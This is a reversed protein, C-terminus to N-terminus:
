LARARVQRNQLSFKAEIHFSPDAQLDPTQSVSGCVYRQLVQATVKKRGDVWDKQALRLKEASFKIVQIHGAMSVGYEKLLSDLIQYRSIQDKLNELNGNAEQLAHIMGSLSWVGHHIVQEVKSLVDSQHEIMRTDVVGGGIMIWTRTWFGRQNEIISRSASLSQTDITTMSRINDLNTQLIQLDILLVNAQNLLEFIRPSIENIYVTVASVVSKSAPEVLINPFMAYFDRLLRALSDPFVFAMVYDILMPSHNHLTLDETMSDIGGVVKSKKPMKTQGTIQALEEVTMDTILLVFDIAGGVRATFKALDYRVLRSGDLYEQIGEALPIRSPLESMLISWRTARLADDTEILMFPLTILPNGEHLVKSFETHTSNIAEGFTSEKQTPPIASPTSLACRDLSCYETTYPLKCFLSYVHCFPVMITTWALALLVLLIYSYIIFPLIGRVISVLPLLIAWTNKAVEVGKNYIDSLFDPLITVAQCAGQSVPDLTSDIVESLTNCTTAKPKDSSHRRSITELSSSALEPMFLPEM